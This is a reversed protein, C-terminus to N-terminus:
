PRITWATWGLLGLQKLFVISNLQVHRQVMWKTSPDLFNLTMTMLRLIPQIM